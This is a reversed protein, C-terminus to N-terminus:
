RGKKAPKKAAVLREVEKAATSFDLEVGVPIYEPKLKRMKGESVLQEFLPLNQRWVMDNLQNIRASTFNLGGARLMDHTVKGLYEGKAMFRMSAGVVPVIRGQYTVPAHEVSSGGSTASSKESAGESVVSAKSVVARIGAMAKMEAVIPTVVLPFNDPLREAGGAAKIAEANVAEILHSFYSTLEPTPELGQERLMARTEKLIWSGHPVLRIEDVPAEIPKPIEPKAEPFLAAMNAGDFPGPIVGLSYDHTPEPHANAYEHLAVAGAGSAAAAAGSLLLNRLVKGPWRALRTLAGEVAPPSVISTVPSPVNRAKTAKERLEARHLMANYASQLIAIERRDAARDMDLMEVASAYAEEIERRSANESVRLVRQPFRDREEQEAREAATLEEAERREIRVLMSDKAEQLRRIAVFDESGAPDLAAVRGAYAEEIERRSAHEGVGLVNHPLRAVERQEIDELALDRATQLLQIARADEPSDPDLMAMRGLFVTEVEARSVDAKLGFFAFASATTLIDESGLTAEFRLLLRLRARCNIYERVAAEFNLMENGARSFASFYEQFFEETPRFRVVACHFSFGERLEEEQDAILSATALLNEALRDKDFGSSELYSLFKQAVSVSQTFVASLAERKIEEDERKKFESYGNDLQLNEDNLVTSFDNNHADGWANHAVESRAFSGVADTDARARVPGVVPEEILPVFVKPENSSFVSLSPMSIMPRDSDLLPASELLSVSPFVESEHSSPAILPEENSVVPLAPVENEEKASVKSVAVSDPNNESSDLPTSVKPVIVTASEDDFTGLDVQSLAPNILVAKSTRPSQALVTDPSELPAASETSPDEADAESRTVSDTNKESSDFAPSVEPVIVESNDDDFAVPDVPPTRFSKGLVEDLSGLSMSPLVFSDIVADLSDLSSSPPVSSEIVAPSSAVPLASTLFEPESFLRLQEIHEAIQGRREKSIRVAAMKGKLVEVIGKTNREPNRLVSLLFMREDLCSVRDPQSSAKSSDISNVMEQLVQPREPIRLRDFTVRELRSSM